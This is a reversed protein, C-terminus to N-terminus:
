FGSPNGCLHTEANGASGNCYKLTMKAQFARREAGQMKSLALRIDDIRDRSLRPHFPKSQSLNNMEGAESESPYCFCM